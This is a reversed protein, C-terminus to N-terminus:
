KLVTFPIWYNSQWKGHWHRSTRRDPLSDESFARAAATSFNVTTSPTTFQAKVPINNGDLRISFKVRERITFTKSLTWQPWYQL